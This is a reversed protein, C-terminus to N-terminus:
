QTKAVPKERTQLLNFLLAQLACPASTKKKQTDKMSLTPFCFCFQTSQKKKSLNAITALPLFTFLMSGKNSIAVPARTLLVDKHPVPFCM